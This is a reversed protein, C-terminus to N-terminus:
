DEYLFLGSSNPFTDDDTTLNYSIPYGEVVDVFALEVLSLVEVDPVTM